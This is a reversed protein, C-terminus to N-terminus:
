CFNFLFWKLFPNDWKIITSYCWLQCLACTSDRGTSHCNGFIHTTRTKEPTKNARPVQTIRPVNYRGLPPMIWFKPETWSIRNRSIERVSFQSIKTVLPPFVHGEHCSTPAIKATSTIAVKNQRKPHNDPVPCTVSGASRALNRSSPHTSTTVTTTTQAYEIPTVMTIAKTYWMKVLIDQNSLKPRLDLLLDSVFISFTM